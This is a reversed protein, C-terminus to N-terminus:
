VTMRHPDLLLRRDPQVMLAMALPAPDAGPSPQPGEQRPANRRPSIESGNDEEEAQQQYVWLLKVNDADANAYDEAHNGARVGVQNDHVYIYGEAQGQDRPFLLVRLSDVRRVHAGM